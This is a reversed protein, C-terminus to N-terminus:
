VSVRPSGVSGRARLPMALRVVNSNGTHAPARDDELLLEISRRGLDYHPIAVTTLQPRTWLSLPDDDFSIVSVDTPVTLGADALANFAGLALRDNFCILARPTKPAALLERAAAYGLEPQWDECLIAGAIRADAATLVERIGQRREIAALSGVPTQGRRSGVGILCIGERHGADLLTQAVTRGAQLEDPIVSLLSAPRLPVANLLVARRGELAKPVALKRTYM